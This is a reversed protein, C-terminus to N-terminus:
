GQCLRTRAAALRLGQPGTLGDVAGRGHPVPTVVPYGALVEPLEGPQDVLVIDPFAEIGAGKAFTLVRGQIEALGPEGPTGAWPLVLAVPEGPKFALLFSLLVEAWEAQTWDPRYLFAEPGPPLARRFPKRARLVIETTQVVDNHDRAARDLQEGTIRGSRYEADWWPDLNLTVAEIHFDLGLYLALPTGPQGRRIWEENIDLSFHEFMEALVPRVHTPDQLFDRHRPHPVVIRVLAGPACVRYLEQLIGLFTDSDRGLHELVHKLLVEEAADDPIPWPLQELDHVLDPHSAPYRDVNVWGALHDQGCGLNLKMPGEPLPHPTAPVAAPGPGPAPLSLGLASALGTLPGSPLLFAYHSDLWAALEAAVPREPARFGLAAVAGAQSALFDWGPRREPDLNLLLEPGFARLSGGLEQQYAADGAARALDVVQWSTRAGAAWGQAPAEAVLLKLEALTQSRLAALLPELDAARPALLLVRRSGRVLFGLDAVVLHRCDLGPAVATRQQVLDGGLDVAAIRRLDFGARELLAKSEAWAAADRATFRHHTIWGDGHNKRLTGMFAQFHEPRDPFFTDAVLLLGRLDLMARDWPPEGWSGTSCHYNVLAEPIIRLRGHGLVYELGTAVQPWGCDNFPAFRKAAAELWPERLFILISIFSFVASASRARRLYELLDGPQSLDWDLRDLTEFWEMRGAAPDWSDVVVHPLYFDRPESQILGVVHALAGPLLADDDGLLWAYRGTAHRVVTEFNNSGNNVANRHWSLQPHRAAYEALLEPTPDASNNDSVVLDVLGAPLAAVQPLCSDLCARLWDVRNCTPICSSRLPTVM